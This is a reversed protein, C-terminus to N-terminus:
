KGFRRPRLSSLAATPESRRHFRDSSQGVLRVIIHVAKSEDLKLRRAAPRFQQSSNGQLTTGGAVFDFDDARGGGRERGGGRQTAENIGRVHLTSLHAIKYDDLTCGDELKKGEFILIMEDIPISLKDSILNKIQLIRIVNSVELTITKGTLTKVNISLGGGRLKLVLHLESEKEIKYDALTPNHLACVQLLDGSKVTSTMLSGCPVSTGAADWMWWGTASRLSDWGASRNWKDRKGGKAFLVSLIDEVSTDSLADLRIEIWERSTPEVVVVKFDRDAEPTFICEILGTEEEDAIGSSAVAQTAPSPRRWLPFCGSQGMQRQAVYQQVEQKAAAVNRLTYFTFKKAETVPREIHGKSDAELQWAGMTTGDINIDLRCATPHPNFVELSYQAGNCMVAINEGELDQHSDSGAINLGYGGLAVPWDKTKASMKAEQSTRVSHMLAACTAAEIRPKKLGTNYRLLELQLGAFIVRQQDAPINEKNHIKSKVKDITDSSQVELTITKGTLTKVFIQGAWYGSAEHMGSTGLRLVLHLTAENQVGYDALVAVGELLQKGGFILRQQDPPIGEKDQIKSKVKDITDSSQVELTITKGPMKVVIQM